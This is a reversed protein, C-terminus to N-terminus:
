LRLGILRPVQAVVERLAEAHARTGSVMMVFDDAYRRM